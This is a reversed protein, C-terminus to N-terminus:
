GDGSGSFADIAKRLRRRRLWVWLWVMGALIAGIIFAPTLGLADALLGLILAGIAPGARQVIGFLSLVRGRFAPNSTLHILTQTGSGSVLSLFGIGALLLHAVWRIDGFWAFLLMMLMLGGPGALVAGMVAPLTGLRLLWVGGAMAGIGVSVTLSALDSPAPGFWKGAIAPLLEVMGRVGLSVSLLLLLAMGIVPHTGAHRLGGVVGDLLGGPPGSARAAVPSRQLRLLLLIFPIFSLGNLAFALAPSGATLALGAVIPGVFRAANFGFSNLSVTTSLLPRPSVDSALMLRPPQNIGEIMGLAIAAATLGPLSLLDLFSLLALVFAQTQAAIQGFVLLRFRDGRDSLVGGFPAVLLSPVLECAAVAGVWGASHTLDFVLWGVAVRQVWLGVNSVWSAILFLLINPEAIAQRLLGPNRIPM